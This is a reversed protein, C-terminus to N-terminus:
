RVAATPAPRPESSITRRQYECLYMKMSSKQTAQSLKRTKQYVIDFLPSAGHSIYTKGMPWTATPTPSVYEVDPNRVQALEVALLLDAGRVVAGRPRVLQIGDDFSGPLDREEPVKRLGILGEVDLLFELLM